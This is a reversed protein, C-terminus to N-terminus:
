LSAPTPPSAVGPKASAFHLRPCDRPALSPRRRKSLVSAPLTKPAMSAGAKRPLCASPLPPRHPPNGAFRRLFSRTRITTWRKCAQGRLPALMAGRNVVGNRIEGPKFLASTRPAFLRPHCSAPRATVIDPVTPPDHPEVPHCRRAHHPAPSGTRPPSVVPPASM